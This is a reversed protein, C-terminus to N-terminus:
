NVDLARVGQEFVFQSAERTGAVDIADIAAKCEALFGYKCRQKYADADFENVPHEALPEAPDTQLMEAM